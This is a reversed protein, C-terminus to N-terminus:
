WSRPPSSARSRLPSGSSPRVRTRTPAAMRSALLLLEAGDAYENSDVAGEASMDISAPDVFAVDVGMGQTAAMAPTALSSALVLALLGVDFSKGCRSRRHM